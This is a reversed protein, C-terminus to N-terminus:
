EKPPSSSFDTGICCFDSGWFFRWLPLPAPYGCPTYRGQVHRVTQKSLSSGSSSDYPSFGRRQM